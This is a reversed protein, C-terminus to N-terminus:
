IHIIPQEFAWIKSLIATGKLIYPEIHGSVDYITPIVSSVGRKTMPISKELIKNYPEFTFIDEEPVYSM